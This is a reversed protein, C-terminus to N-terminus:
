LLQRGLKRILEEDGRYIIGKMGMSEALRVNVPEDDIFIAEPAAIGLKTLALRFIKKDRKATKLESSIFILDFLKTIKNQDLIGRLFEWPADSLLVVRYKKRLQRVLALTNRNLMVKKSWERKVQADTAGILQGLRHILRNYSISGRDAPFVYKDKLIKIQEETFYEKFWLRAVDSSIVGFFDFIVAKYKM